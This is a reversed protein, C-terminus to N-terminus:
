WITLRGASTWLWRAISLNTAGLGGGALFSFLRLVILQGIKPKSRERVFYM